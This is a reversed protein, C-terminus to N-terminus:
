WEFKQYVWGQQWPLLFQYIEDSFKSYSLKYILYWWLEQALYPTKPTQRSLQTLSIQTLGVGTAMTVFIHLNECFNVIFRTWNLMPGLNKQLFTPTKPSPWDIPTM